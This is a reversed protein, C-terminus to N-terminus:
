KLLSIHNYLNNLHKEICKSLSDVHFNDKNIGQSDLDSVLNDYFNTDNLVETFTKDSINKINSTDFLQRTIYAISSFYLIIKFDVQEEFFSLFNILYLFTARERLFPILKYLSCILLVDMSQAMVGYIAFFFLEGTNADKIPLDVNKEYLELREKLTLSLRDKKIGFFIKSASDQKLHKELEKLTHITQNYEKLSSIDKFLSCFAQGAGLDILEHDVESFYRIPLIFIENQCNNLIEFNDELTKKIQTDLVKKYEDTIVEYPRMYLCSPDDLIHKYGVTLFPFHERNAYDICTAATFVFTEWPSFYNHLLCLVLAKNKQWFIEISDICKFWDEAPKDLTIRLLEKYEAQLLIAKNELYNKSM